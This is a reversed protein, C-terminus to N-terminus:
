REQLGLNDRKRNCLHSGTRQGPSVASKQASITATKKQLRAKLRDLLPAYYTGTITKGKELYDILIIGQSDRFVIAMVKGASM